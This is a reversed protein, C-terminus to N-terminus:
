GNEVEVLRSARLLAYVAPTAIPTTAVSGVIQLPTADRPLGLSVAADALLQGAKKVEGIKARDAVLKEREVLDEHREVLLGTLKAKLTTAAVMAGANGGAKAITRAEQAELLLSQVTINNSQAIEDQLRKVEAAIHPKALMQSAQENSTNKSFGARAAAATGNCDVIYERAFAAQKPTLRPM